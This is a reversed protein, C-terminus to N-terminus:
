RCAGSVTDLTAGSVSVFTATYGTPTLVLRLAGFRANQRYQSRNLPRLLTLEAGGTGVVFSRVGTSSAVGDPRKPAFRQYSHDHGALYLEAHNNYAVQFLERAQLSDGHDGDSFVPHHAFVLECTGATQLQSAVFKGQPTTATCGGVPGCNSNAAVLRWGGLSFSYWGKGRTGARAGFYDFYGAAGATNYDHNGPVPFTIGKLRGMKPDYWQRYEALTGNEYVGDGLLLVADRDADASILAAVDSCDVARDARPCADGVAWVVTKNGAVAAAVQESRAPASVAPGALGIPVATLCVIVVAPLTTSRSPTLWRRVVSRSSPPPM